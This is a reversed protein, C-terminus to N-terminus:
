LEEERLEEIGCHPCNYNHQQKMGVYIMGCRLCKM